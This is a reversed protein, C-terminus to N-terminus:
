EIRGSEMAEIGAREPALQQRFDALTIIKLTASQERYNYLHVCGEADPSPTLLQDPDLPDRLDWTGAAHGLLLFRRVM